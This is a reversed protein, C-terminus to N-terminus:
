SRTSARNIKKVNKFLKCLFSRMNLFSHFWYYIFTGFRFQHYLFVHSMKEGDNREKNVIIIVKRERKIISFSIRGYIIENKKQANSSSQDRKSDRKKHVEAGLRRELCM